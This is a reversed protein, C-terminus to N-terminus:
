RRRELESKLEVLEVRDEPLRHMAGEYQILDSAKMGLLSDSLWPPEGAFSLRDILNGLKDDKELRRLVPAVSKHLGSVYTELQHIERAVRGFRHELLDTQQERITYPPYTGCPWEIFFSVGVRGWDRKALERAAEYQSKSVEEVAKRPHLIRLASQLNRAKTYLYQDYGPEVGTHVRWYRNVSAKGKM